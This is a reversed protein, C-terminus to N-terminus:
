RGEQPGRCGEGGKRGPVEPGGRKGEEQPGEPENGERERQPGRARGDKRGPAKQDGGRGEKLPGEPSGMGEKWPGEAGERGGPSGRGGGLSGRVGERGVPPGSAGEGGKRGPAKQGEGEFPGRNGGVEPFGEAGTERLAKAERGPARQGKGHARQWMSGPARQGRMRPGEAGRRKRRTAKLGRWGKREPGEAERGREPASHGGGPLM